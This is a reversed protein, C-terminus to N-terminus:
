FNCPTELPPEWVPVSDTFSVDTDRLVAIQADVDEPSLLVNGAFYAWDIQEVYDRPESSDMLGGNIFWLNFNMSMPVEPYYEGDHTAFSEGDVYYHTEGDGIQIVLTHWGDFSDEQSESANDAIWPELQFTEWTTAFFVSDPVGWGGNPLYEFDLESYDPDMDYEQPSILYFTQVVNDGDPGVTPEDSFRVRAAYTGEYFKRQQCVQTQYVVDGDTSSTMQMLSNAEADPDDVFTVNEARWVAGPVGPWGDETRVVWGNETLAPDDHAAYDFDDFLLQEPLPVPTPTAAFSVSAVALVALLCLLFMINRRM